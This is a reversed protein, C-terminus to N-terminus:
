RRHQSFIDVGSVDPVLVREERDIGRARCRARAALLVALDDAILDVDPEPTPPSPTPPLQGKLSRLIKRRIEETSETPDTKPEPAAMEAPPPAPLRGGRLRPLIQTTAFTERMEPAMDTWNREYDEWPVGSSEEPIRGAELAAVETRARDFLEVDTNRLMVWLTLLVSHKSLFSYLNNNGRARAYSSNISNNCTNVVSRTSTRDEGAGMSQRVPIYVSTPSKPATIPTVRDSRRRLWYAWRDPDFVLELGRCADGVRFRRRRLYGRDELGALARRVTAPSGPLGARRHVGALEGVSILARDAHPCLRRAALLVWFAKRERPLLDAPATTQVWSIREFDNLTISKTISESYNRALM